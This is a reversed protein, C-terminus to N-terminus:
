TYRKVARPAILHSRIGRFIYQTKYYSYQQRRVDNCRFSSLHLPPFINSQLSPVFSLVSRHRSVEGLPLYVLMLHLSISLCFWHPPWNNTVWNCKPAFMLLGLHGYHQGTGSSTTCTIKVYERKYTILTEGLQKLFRQSLISRLKTSVKKCSHFAIFM